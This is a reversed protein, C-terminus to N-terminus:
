KSASFILKDFWERFEADAACFIRDNNDLIKIFVQRILNDIIKSLEKQAELSKHKADLQQGHVYKSRLAYANKIHKYNELKTKSDGAIYMAARESVRHTVEGVDATFLCELVGVYFSIKAPLFSMTRALLLFNNAREIRNFSNYPLNNFYNAKIKTTDPEVIRDPLKFPTVFGLMKDFFGAARELEDFSYTVDNYAGVCTSFSANRTRLFVINEDPINTFFAGINSSSDKVFWLCHIFNGIRQMYLENIHKYDMDEPADVVIWFYPFDRFNVVHILGIQEIFTKNWFHQKFFDLGEILHYDKVKFENEFDKHFGTLSCLM